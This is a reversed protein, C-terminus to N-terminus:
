YVECSSTFLLKEVRADLAARLVNFTGVVNTQFAYDARAIATSASREAALHYVTQTDEFVSRLLDADRVDGHIFRLRGDGLHQMLNETRGRHLNDLVVVERCGDRMLRDVLHSGIFGAGGTVVTKRLM